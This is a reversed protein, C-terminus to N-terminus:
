QFLSDISRSVRAPMWTTVASKLTKSVTEQATAPLTISNVINVMGTIDATTPENRCVQELCCCFVQFDVIDAACLLSVFKVFGKYKFKAQCEAFDNFTTSSHYQFVTNLYLRLSSQEQNPIQYGGYGPIHAEIYDVIFQIYRPENDVLTTLLKSLDKPQEAPIASDFFATIVHYPCTEILETCLSLAKSFQADTHCSDAITVLLALLKNYEETPAREEDGLTTAPYVSDLLSLSSGSHHSQSGDHESSHSSSEWEQSHAVQMPQYMQVPAAYTQPQQMQQQQEYYTVAQQAFLQETEASEYIPEVVRVGKKMQARALARHTRGQSHAKYQAYSNCVVNCLPCVCPQVPTCGEPNKYWKLDVPPQEKHAPIEEVRVWEGGINESVFERFKKPSIWHSVEIWRDSFDTCVDLWSMADLPEGEELEAVVQRAIKEFAMECEVVIAPNEERTNKRYRKLLLRNSFFETLVAVKWEETATAVM